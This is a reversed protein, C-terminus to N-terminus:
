HRHLNTNRLTYAQMIIYKLNFKRALIKIFQKNRLM